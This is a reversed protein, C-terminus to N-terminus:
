EAAPLNNIHSDGSAKDLAKWGVVSIAGINVLHKVLETQNKIGDPIAIERFPQGPATVKANGGELIEINIPGEVSLVDFTSPHAAQNKLQQSRLHYEMDSMCGSLFITTLIATLLNKMKVGKIVNKVTQFCLESYLDFYLFFIIQM